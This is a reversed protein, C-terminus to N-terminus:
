TRLSPLSAQNISAKRQELYNYEPVLSMTVYYIEQHNTYTVTQLQTPSLSQISTAVNVLVVCTSLIIKYFSFHNSLNSTVNQQQFDYCQTTTHYTYGHFCPFLYSQKSRNNHLHAQSPFLIDTQLVSSGAILCQHRGQPYQFPEFSM